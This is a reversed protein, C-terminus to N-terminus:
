RHADYPDDARQAGDPNHFLYGRALVTLYGRSLRLEGHAYGHYVPRSLRQGEQEPRCLDARQYLRPYEAWENTISEQTM